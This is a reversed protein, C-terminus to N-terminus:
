LAPPVFRESLLLGDWSSSRRGLRIGSLLVRGNGDLALARGSMTQSAASTWLTRGDSTDIAIIRRDDTTVVVFLARSWRQCDRQYKHLGSSAIPQTWDHGGSPSYRSLYVGDLSPMLSLSVAILRKHM